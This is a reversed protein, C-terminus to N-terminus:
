AKPALSAVAPIEMAVDTADAPVKAVRLVMISNVFYLAYTPFVFTTDRM